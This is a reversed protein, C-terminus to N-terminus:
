LMDLARFLEMRNKANESGTETRFHIDRKLVGRRLKGTLYVVAHYIRILPLLLRCKKVTPYQKGLREGSPFLEKVSGRIKQILMYCVYQTQSKQKLLIQRNYEMACELRENKGRIGLYGDRIIDDVMQETLEDSVFGLGPFEDQRFGGHRVMIWLMSSILNHYHLDQMVHWFRQSDIQNRYKSFYLAIDLLMRFTLAELIFHKVAHLALFILQDTHGLTVFSGDPDNVTRFSEQIMEREDLDQFWVDRILESYMAIHLEVM